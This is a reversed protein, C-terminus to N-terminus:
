NLGIGDTPRRSALYEGFGTALNTSALNPAILLLERHEIEVAQQVHQRQAGICDGLELAQQLPLQQAATVFKWAGM